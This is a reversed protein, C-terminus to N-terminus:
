PSAHSIICIPWVSRRTMSHGDETMSVIPQHLVAGPIMVVMDETAILQKSYM